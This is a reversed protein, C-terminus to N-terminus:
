YLLVDKGNEQLNAPPALIKDPLPIEPTYHFPTSDLSCTIGPNTGHRWCRRHIRPLAPEPLGQLSCPCSASAPYLNEELIQQFVSQSPYIKCCFSSNPYVQYEPKGIEKKDGYM